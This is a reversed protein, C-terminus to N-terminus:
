FTDYAKYNFYIRISIIVFLVWACTTRSAYFLNRQLYLLRRGVGYLSTRTAQWLLPSSCSRGRLDHCFALAKRFRCATLPLLSFVYSSLSPNFSASLLLSCLPVAKKEVALLLAGVVGVVGVVGM